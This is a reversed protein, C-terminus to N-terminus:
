AAPHLPRAYSSRRSPPSITHHCRALEALREEFSAVSPISAARRAPDPETSDAILAALAPSAPHGGALARLLVGLGFIDVSATPPAPRAGRREPALFPPSGYVAHPRPAHLLESAGLDVLVAHPAGRETWVIVNAPRVDHHVLGQGHLQGLAAAVQRAVALGWGLPPARRRSLRRDLPAGPVFALALVYRGQASLGPLLGLDPGVGAFRRSYLCGLHPHPAGLGALHAHEDHLSSATHGLKLAALRWRQAHAPSLRGTQHLTRILQMGAARRLPPEDWPCALLVEGQGGAGLRGIVAFPGVRVGSASM